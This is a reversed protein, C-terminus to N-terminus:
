ALYKVMYSNWFRRLIGDHERELCKILWLSLCIICYMYKCAHMCIEMKNSYSDSIGARKYAFHERKRIYSDCAEMGIWMVKQPKNTKKKLKTNACFNLKM